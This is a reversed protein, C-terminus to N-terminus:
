QTSDALVFEAHTKEREAVVDAPFAMINAEPPEGTAHFALAFRAVYGVPLLVPVEVAAEFTYGGIDEGNDLYIPQMAVRVPREKDRGLERVVQHGPRLTAIFRKGAAILEIADDAVYATLTRATRRPDAVRGALYVHGFDWMMYCTVQAPSSDGEYPSIEMTIPAAKKWEDLSGDVKMNTGQKFLDYRPVRTRVDAWIQQPAAARYFVENARAIRAESFQGREDSSFSPWAYGIVYPIRAAAATYAEFWDHTAPAGAESLLVAMGTDRYIQKILRESPQPSAPKLYVAAANGRMALVVERPVASTFRPGFVMHTPDYRRIASHTIEFYRHGILSLLASRDAQARDREAKEGADLSNMELLQGFDSIAQGWNRNFRAADGGYRQRLGEVLARKGHSSAPLGFFDDVLGIARGSTGRWALDGDTVYGVLWPDSAAPACKTKAQEDAAKEFAPDFVDPFGGAAPAGLAKARQSIDLALMYAINSRDPLFDVWPGAGNFGLRKLRRVGAEDTEGPALASVGKWLFANGLPDVLWPRARVMRIHFFGTPPVWLRTWGGYEDFEPARRAAACRGALSLLTAFVCTTALGRM